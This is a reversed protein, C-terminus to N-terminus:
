LKRQQDTPLAANLRRVEATLANVTPASFLQRLTLKVGFTDRLKAVLQVGLMSHGGLMFFNDTPKVAAKGLLGAIIASISAELDAGGASSERPAAPPTPTLPALNALAAKDIKGNVTTPLAALSVYHRPVMYDPLHLALYERLEEVSPAASSDTVLYAILDLGQGLDRAIVASKRVRPHKELWAAIEGPEIRYGRIKIQDDLRGMFAIEGNDLFRARDGTRYIRVSPQGESPRFEVFSRATLEPNGRYGRGVHAGALCLEGSQGHPVPKLQEDLIYASTKPIPRGISPIEDAGPLVECSTAVVTCEAPGYCNAMRFPTQPSPRRRLAEGGTLLWRLHTNAPWAMQLLQEALVTPAFCVTIKQAVLWAALDEPSRRTPEDAIHLAAGATLNTWLEWGIVDFGLGAVHSARDNPTLDFANQHWQILCNLNGHTIEAGKPRGTSGSTYVVYALQDPSYSVWPRRPSEGSIRQADPGDLEIMRVSPNQLSKTKGRHTLIAVANSDQTVFSLRDIPTASDLPVYVAGAKLTALAAVVFDASREFFLVVTAGGGIGLKLLHNALQSARSEFQAFSIATAGDVIAIHEPQREALHAIRAMLSAVEDPGTSESAHFPAQTSLTGDFM